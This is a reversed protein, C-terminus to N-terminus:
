RGLIQAVGSYLPRLNQQCAGAAGNFLGSFKAAIFVLVVKYSLKLLAGACSRPLVSSIM